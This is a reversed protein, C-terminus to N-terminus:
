KAKKRWIQANISSLERNVVYQVCKSTHISKYKARHKKTDTIRKKGEEPFKVGLKSGATSCINFLNFEKWLVDFWQQEAPILEEKNEILEEAQFRFNSGGYKNWSRQLKTNGHINKKLALKHERFRKEINLASGIYLQNNILNKISYIGMSM